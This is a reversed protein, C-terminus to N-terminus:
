NIMSFLGGRTVSGASHADNVAQISDNLFYFLSPIYLSTHVDTVWEATDASVMAHAPGHTVPGWFTCFVLIQETGQSQIENKQCVVTNQIGSM